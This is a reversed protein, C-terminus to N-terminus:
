TSIIIINVVFGFCYGFLIQKHRELVSEDPLKQPKEGPDRSGTRTRIECLLLFVFFIFKHIFIYM